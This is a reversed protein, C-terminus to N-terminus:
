HPTTGSLRRRIEDIFAGCDKAFGPVVSAVRQATEENYTHSTLNRMRMFEFWPDPSLILGAEAGIRFLDRRSWRDPDEEGHEVELYRKMLKWALEYTYEFRQILADRILADGPAAQHADLALLLSAYAKELPGILVRPPSNM